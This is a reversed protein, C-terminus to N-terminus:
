VELPRAATSRVAGDRKQATLQQTSTPLGCLMLTTDLLTFLTLTFVNSYNFIEFPSRYKTIADMKLANRISMNWAPASTTAGHRVIDLGADRALGALKERSFLHFHRPFHTMGWNDKFIRGAPASTDPTELYLMGGPALHASIWSFVSVPDIVHEIVHVGVIVDFRTPTDVKEIFGELVRIGRAELDQRAAPGFSVDNAYLNIPHPVMEGIFKLQQGAGAGIELVNAGEGLRDLVRKMRPGDFLHRKVWSVLKSPHYASSTNHTLYNAYIQDFDAERPRPSLYLHGCQACQVFTFRNSCTRFEIDYGEFRPAGTTDDAGCLACGVRVLDLLPRREAGVGAEENM